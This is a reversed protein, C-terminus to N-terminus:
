EKGEDKPLRAKPDLLWMRLAMLGVAVLALIFTVVMSKPLSPYTAWLVYVGLPVTLTVLIRSTRYTDDHTPRRFFPRDLLHKAM